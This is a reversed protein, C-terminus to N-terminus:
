APAVQPLGARSRASRARLAGGKGVVAVVVRGIGDDDM